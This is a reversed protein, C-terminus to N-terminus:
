ALLLVPDELFRKFETVFEGAAVGDIIRHDVSLTARLVHGIAIAGAQIVPEQDISSIALIAGQGPSILATFSEVKVLGMNSISFTGGLLDEAKPRGSRARQVLGRVEDVLDALPLIDANKAVPILLGGPVATVIGINVAAPQILKGEEFHSNLLPFRKLTMAVAKVILHTFTIGEYQALPKLSSRLKIVEDMQVKTTVYFHPITRSSELMRAAITQRMKSMIESSASGKEEGSVLPKYAPSPLKASSIAVKEQQQAGTSRAANIPVVTTNSQEGIIREIDRRVIRGGDGSGQVALLDIGHMRALNRALPSVKTREEAAYKHESHMSQLIESSFVNHGLPNVQPSSTTHEVGSGSLPQHIQPGSEVEVRQPFVNHGSAPTNIPSADSVSTNLEEGAVGVVAIISGVSCTSKEPALIKLLVGEHFSEIELDAKDTSIEALTEGRKVADGEQKLWRLITGENMTDSLQPMTIEVAM